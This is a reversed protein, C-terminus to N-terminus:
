TIEVKFLSWENWKLIKLNNKKEKACYELIKIVKIRVIINIEM